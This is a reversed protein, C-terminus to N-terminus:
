FFFNTAVQLLAGNRVKNNLRQLEPCRFCLYKNYKERMNPIRKMRYGSYPDIGIKPSVVRTAETTVVTAAATTSTSEAHGGGGGCNDGIDEIGQQEHEGEEEEDDDEEDDDGDEQGCTQADPPIVIDEIDSADHDNFSELQIVETYYRSDMTGTYADVRGYESGGPPHASASHENEGSPPAGPSAEPKTRNSPARQRYLPRPM